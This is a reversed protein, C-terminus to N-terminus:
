LLGLHVPRLALVEAYLARAFDLLGLSIGIHVVATSEIHVGSVSRFRSFAFREHVLFLNQLLASIRLFSM